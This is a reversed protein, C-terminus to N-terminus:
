GNSDSDQDMLADFVMTDPMRVEAADALAADAAMASAAAVTEDRNHIRVIRLADPQAVLVCPKNHRRCHDQM